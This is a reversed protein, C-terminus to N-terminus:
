SREVTYKATLRYEGGAPVQVVDPGANTTEVCLMRTYDDDALDGMQAAIESWPNWVVASRSGGSAIRIRRGLAPDDIILDEEVGTYIRDVEGSITVPGSQQKQAGGDVKDLYDNGDLGLLQAQGIDGVRFYTHLAQTITLAEDGLNATVLELTVSSGVTIEISFRFRHPWIERTQEDDALGLTIRTAGEALAETGLVEWLRNRVFGHAPRGQGEPDPGFWPWCVPAGGKIAKGEQYYAGDSLFMLDEPQGAPRFSLLQGGYVSIRATALGNDVEAVPFGGKGDVFRLQGALGFENNLQEIGM